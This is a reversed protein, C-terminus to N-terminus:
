GLVLPSCTLNGLRAEPGCYSIELVELESNVPGVILTHDEGGNKHASNFPTDSRLFWQRNYPTRRLCGLVTLFAQDLAEGFVVQSSPLEISRAYSALLEAQAIKNMKVAKAMPTSFAIVWKATTTMEQLKSENACWFPKLGGLRSLSEWTIGGPIYELEGDYRRALEMQETRFALAPVTAAQELQDSILPMVEELIACKKIMESRLWLEPKHREIM